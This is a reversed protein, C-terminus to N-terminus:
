GVGGESASMMEQLEGVDSEFDSRSCVVANPLFMCPSFCQLRDRCRLHVAPRAGLPKEPRERVENFEVLATRAGTEAVMLSIIFVPDWLDHRLKNPSQNHM